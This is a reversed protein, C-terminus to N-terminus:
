YNIGFTDVLIPVRFERVEAVLDVLCAFGETPDNRPRNGKLAVQCKSVFYKWTGYKDTEVKVAAFQRVDTIVAYCNNSEEHSSLFSTCRNIAEGILTKFHIDDESKWRGCVILPLQDVEM